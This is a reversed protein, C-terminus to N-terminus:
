LDCGSKKLLEKTKNEDNSVELSYKKKLYFWKQVYKCAYDKYVPLWESITKAGKQRNYKLNTLVLNEPDNAFQTKQKKSWKSGGSESAHKLPIVHDVDIKKASTIKEPYYYDDWEGKDVLCYGRKTKKYTVKIKSRQELLEHRTNKCDKDEDIWHKWNKRDYATAVTVNLLVILLILKM